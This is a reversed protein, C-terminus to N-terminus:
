PNPNFSIATSDVYGPYGANMLADNLSNWSALWTLGTGCPAPLGNTSTVGRFLMYKYQRITVWSPAWGSGICYIEPLVYAVPRGWAVQWVQDITWQPSYESNPNNGFDLNAYRTTQSQYGDFWRLTGEGCATWGSSPFCLWNCLVRLM